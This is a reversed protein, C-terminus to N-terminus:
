TGVPRAESRGFPSHDLGDAFAPRRRARARLVGLVSPQLDDADVAELAGIGPRSRAFIDLDALDFRLGRRADDKRGRLLIQPELSRALRQFADEDAPRQALAVDDRGRPLRADAAYGGM